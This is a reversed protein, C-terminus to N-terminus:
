NWMQVRAKRQAEVLYIGMREVAEEHEMVLDKLGEIQKLQKDASRSKWVLRIGLGINFLALAWIVVYFPINFYWTNCM